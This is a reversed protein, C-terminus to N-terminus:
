YALCLGTEHPTLVEFPPVTGNDHHDFIAVMLGAISVKNLLMIMLEDCKGDQYLAM